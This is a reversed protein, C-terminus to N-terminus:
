IDLSSEPRLHAPFVGQRELEDPDLADDDVHRYRAWLEELDRNSLHGTELLRARTKRLRRVLFYFRVQVERVLEEFLIERAMASPVPIQRFQALFRNAAQKWERDCRPARHTIADVERRAAEAAVLRHLYRKAEFENEPLVEPVLPTGEPLILRAKVTLDTATQEVRVWPPRTPFALTAVTGVIGLLDKLDNAHRRALVIRSMRRKLRGLANEITSLVPVGRHYGSVAESPCASGLACTGRGRCTCGQWRPSDTKLTADM